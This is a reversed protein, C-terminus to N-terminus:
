DSESGTLTTANGSGWYLVRDQQPDPFSVASLALTRHVPSIKIGKFLSLVLLSLFNPLLLFPTAAHEERFILQQLMIQKWAPIVPIERSRTQLPDFWGEQLQEGNLPRSSVRSIVGKLCFTHQYLFTHKWYRSELTCLLGGGGCVCMCVCLVCVCVCVCM